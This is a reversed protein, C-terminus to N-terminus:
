TEQCVSFSSDKLTPSFFNALSFSAKCSAMSCGDMEALAKPPNAPFIIEVLGAMRGAAKNLLFRNRANFPLTEYSWIKGV